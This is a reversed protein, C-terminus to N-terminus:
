RRRLGTPRWALSRPQRANSMSTDGRMLWAGACTADARDDRGAGFVAAQPDGSVRALEEAAAIQGELTGVRCRDGFRAELVQRTAFVFHGHGQDIRLAM